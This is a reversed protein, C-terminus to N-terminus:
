RGPPKIGIQAIVFRCLFPNVSIRLSETVGVIFCHESLDQIIIVLLCIIKESPFNNICPIFYAIDDFGPGTDIETCYCIDNWKFPTCRPPDDAEPYCSCLFCHDNSFLKFYSFRERFCMEETGAKKYLFKWLSIINTEHDPPCAPSM